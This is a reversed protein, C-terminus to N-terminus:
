YTANLMLISFSFVEKKGLHYVLVVQTGRLNISAWMPTGAIQWIDTAQKETFLAFSVERFSKCSPGSNLRISRGELAKKRKM